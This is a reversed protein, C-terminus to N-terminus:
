QKLLHEGYEKLEARDMDVLSRLLDAKDAECLSQKLIHQRIEGLLSVYAEYSIDYRDELEKKIKHALAPSNGATSVSIILDGRRMCSPVIFSSLEQSSVVNCLMSHQKCYLGIERNLEKNDTAAVVIYSGHLYEEKYTDEIFHMGVKIKEFDDIFDPSIATVDGNFSLFHESKRYAVKGGGVITIKMEAINLMM